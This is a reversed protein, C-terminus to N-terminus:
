NGIGMNEGTLDSLLEIYSGFLKQESFEGSIKRYSNNGFEVRLQENDALYQLKSVIADTDKSKVLYGNFDDQVLYRNDGVDTAVIPLGAAMAEMISNSLGEYISTSLYIDADKLIAYIGKPRILLEVNSVLDLTNVLTRIATEHYGYGVIRYRIIRGPNDQVLRKYAYLATYFDKSKVFRSVTIITIMDGRAPPKSFQPVQIANHIVRIKDSNFGRKEMRSKASFNNFVTVSNLHNHVLREFILKQFPLQESRVGGVAVLKKNLLKLIGTVFNALTLYSFIVPRESKRIIKNLRRIKNVPSGELGVYQISCNEIFTRNDPDIREKCWNALTVNYGNESFLRALILAQKEAGGKLFTKCFILIHLDHQM